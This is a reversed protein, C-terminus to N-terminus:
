AKQVFTGAELDDFAQQLEEDTNMVIPGYWAVPEGIPKGAIVLFRTSKEGAYVEITSGTELLAATGSAIQDKPATVGAMGEIVYVLATDNEPVDCSFTKGAELSVDLYLPNVMLDSVPGQAEHWSGAIIKVRAGDHETEPIQDPLIDQYRPSMMKHARPLNVWLQFGTIPTKEPNPMEQHVIGRGATMWQVAGAGVVGKNHMSDEHRVEGELMYTVTEIGRHPHWPFGAEYDTPNKSSFDDLLLFPDCQPVEGYGFIRHLHVGAGEVTPKARFTRKITRSSM